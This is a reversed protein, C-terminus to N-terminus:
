SFAILKIRIKLTKIKINPFNFLKDYKQWFFAILIHTCIMYLDDCVRVPQRLQWRVVKKMTGLEKAHEIVCGAYFRKHSHSIIFLM